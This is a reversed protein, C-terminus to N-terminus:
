TRGKKSMRERAVLAILRASTPRIGLEGREWRAVTNKHVGVLRAFGAQSLKLRRRWQLVERATM